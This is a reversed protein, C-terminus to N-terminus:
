SLARLFTLTVTTEGEPRSSAEVHVCQISAGGRVARMVERVVFLGYGTGEEAKVGRKRVHLGRYNRQWVKDIEDKEIPVGSNRVAFVVKDDKCTILVGIERGAYSYKLANDLVNRVALGIVDKDGQVLATKPLQFDWRVPREILESGVRMSGVRSRWRYLSELSAVLAALDTTGEIPREHLSELNAVAAISTLEDHVARAGLHLSELLEQLDALLQPFQNQVAQRHTDLDNRVLGDGKKMTVILSRLSHSLVRYMQEQDSRAWFHHLCGALHESARMIQECAERSLRTKGQERHPLDSLLDVNRGFFCFVYVRPGVRVAVFFALDDAARAPLVISKKLEEKLDSWCQSASPRSYLKGTLVSYTGNERALHDFGRAELVAGPPPHLQNRGAILRLHSEGEHMICLAVDEFAWFVRMRRLIAPLFDDLDNGRLLHATATGGLELRFASETLSRQQRYREEALKTLHGIDDELDERAPHDPPDKREGGQIADGIEALKLELLAKPDQVKQKKWWMRERLLFGEVTTPTDQADFQGIMVAGVLHGHVVVPYAWEKYRAWCSDRYPLEQTVSGSLFADAMRRIIELDSQYCPNIRERLELFRLCRRLLHEEGEEVTPCKCETPCDDYYPCDKGRRADQRFEKLAEEEFVNRFAQCTRRFNLAVGVKESGAPQVPIWFPKGERYKTAWAEFLTVPSQFRQAYYALVKAILHVNVLASLRIERWRTLPRQNYVVACLGSYEIGGENRVAVRRPSSWAVRSVIQRFEEATKIDPCLVAECPAWCSPNGCRLVRESKEVESLLSDADVAGHIGYVCARSLTDIAHETEVRCWPCEIVAVQM